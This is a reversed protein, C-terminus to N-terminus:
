SEVDLPGMFRRRFLPATIMAVPRRFSPNSSRNDPSGAGLYLNRNYMAPDFRLEARAM